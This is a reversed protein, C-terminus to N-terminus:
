KEVLYENVIDKTNSQTKISMGDYVTTKCARRKFGDVVVSCCFCVGMGCYAGTKINHDNKSIDVKGYALLTSLITEGKHAIKKEDNIIINLEETSPKSIDYGRNM